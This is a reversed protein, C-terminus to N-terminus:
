AARVTIDVEAGASWLMALLSDVSFLNIKGRTFDSIRPQTVGFLKGAKSQTLKRSQILDRLRLM